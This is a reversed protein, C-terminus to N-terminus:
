GLTTVMVDGHQVGKMSILSDAFRRVRGYRGRAVLVELCRHEDLHVHLTATILDLADHQHQTLRATLNRLHHDYVLVITVVVEAREDTLAEEALAARVMDRLAESRTAYGKRAILADFRRLLAPEMSVGFRQVIGRSNSTTQRKKVIGGPRRGFSGSKM